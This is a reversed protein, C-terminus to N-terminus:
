PRRAAPQTPPPWPPPRTTAGLYQIRRIQGGDFNAYCLDGSVLDAELDVPHSNPDVVFARLNSATPLGNGGPLMVWICDRSHDGFFLAGNYSGPYSGGPYFSIASIV